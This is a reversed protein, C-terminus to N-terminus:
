LPGAFTKLRSSSAKAAMLAFLTTYGAPRISGNPKLDSAANLLVALQETTYIHPMRRNYPQHGFADDPPIQHRKDEANIAKAFRHITLLRNRRQPTSPAKAAWSLVTQTRVFWDSGQLESFNAFSNLLSAQVRYKFGLAHKLEIYRKVDDKLM